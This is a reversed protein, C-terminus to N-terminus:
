STQCIIREGCNDSPILIKKIATSLQLEGSEDIQKLHYNIDPITVGFLEAMRKQSLWFTENSFVVTVNVKGTTSRYMLVYGEISTALETSTMNDMFYEIAAKVLPKKRDANMVIATCATRSLLVSTVSRYGSNHLQTMEDIPVIHEELNLGKEKQLFPTVKDILREFNWYKQYGLLRALKRSNWWEHGEKDKEKIADFPSQLNSIDEKNM